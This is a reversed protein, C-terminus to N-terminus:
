SKADGNGRLPKEKGELATQANNIKTWKGVALTVLKHLCTHVPIVSLGASYKPAHRVFHCHSKQLNHEWECSQNVHPIKIKNM